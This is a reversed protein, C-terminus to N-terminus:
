KNDQTSLLVHAHIEQELLNYHRLEGDFLGSCTVGLLKIYGKGM